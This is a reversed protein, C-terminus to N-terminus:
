TEFEHGLLNEDHSGPEARSVDVLVNKVEPSMRSALQGSDLSVCVLVFTKEQKKLNRFLKTKEFYFFIVVFTTVPISVCGLV